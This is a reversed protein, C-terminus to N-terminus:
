RWRFSRIILRYADVNDVGRPAGLDVIARKGGRSLYFRNVALTVRKNTVANPTSKTSYTVEFAHGSPLSVPKAHTADVTTAGAVLSAVDAQVSAARYAPGNSVVIRVVNNKDAFTLKAGYGRQLWGEPYKIAYGGAVNHFDLFVQNDPIDGAAASQAEATLAGPASTTGASPAPATQRLTTAASTPVPPTSKASSGCGAALLVLAFLVPVIGSANM